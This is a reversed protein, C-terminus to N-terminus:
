VIAGTVEIFSATKKLEGMKDYTRQKGKLRYTM